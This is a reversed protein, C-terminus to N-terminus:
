GQRQMLVDKAQNVRAALATSGGHDPHFKKMLTRHARIIDAASASEPLGLVEFAQLRSMAGDGGRRQRQGQDAERWGAFRRDLYAELLSAGDPDDLMLEQRLSVLEPRSLTEVARGAYAGSLVMGTMAGSDHDLRMEVMASRASSARGPRAGVGANRFATSAGSMTKWGAFNAVMGAIAAALGVRGRLLMLLAGIMGLVGGGHRVIRAATGADMRGFQKIAQILLFLLILGIVLNM